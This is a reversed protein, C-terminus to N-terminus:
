RTKPCTATGIQVRNWFVDILDGVCHISQEETKSLPGTSFTDELQQQFEIAELSDAGLDKFTSELTITRIGWFAKIARCIRLAVKRKTVPVRM